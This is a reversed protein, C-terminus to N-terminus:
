IARRRPLHTANSATDEEYDYDHEREPESGRGLPLGLALMIVFSPSFTTSADM